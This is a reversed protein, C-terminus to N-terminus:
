TADDLLKSLFNTISVDKESKQYKELLSIMDDSTVKKGTKPNRTQILDSIVSVAQNSERQFEDHIKQWIDSKFIDLLKISDRASLDFKDGLTGLVKKELEKRGKATFYPSNLVADVGKEIRKLQAKTMNENLTYKAHEKDGYAYDISKQAFTLSSHGDKGYFKKANTLRRNAQKVKKALEAYSSM